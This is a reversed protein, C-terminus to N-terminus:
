NKLDYTWNETIQIPDKKDNKHIQIQKKDSNQVQQKQLFSLDHREYQNQNQSKKLFDLTEALNDYFSNIYSGQNSLNYSIQNNNINTNSTTNSFNKFLNNLNNLNNQIPSNSSKSQEQNKQQLTLNQYSNKDQSGSIKLPKFLKLQKMEQQIEEVKRNFQTRFNKLVYIQAEINKEQQNQSKKHSNQSQSLSELEENNKITYIIHELTSILQNKSVKLNQLEQYHKGTESFINVNNQNQHIQSQEDLNNFLKKIQSLSNKNNNELNQIDQQQIFKQNQYINNQDNQEKKKLLPSDKTNSDKKASSLQNQQKYKHLYNNNKQISPSDSYKRFKQNSNIQQQSIDSQKKKGSTSKCFVIKTEQFNSINNSRNPTAEQFLNSQDKQNINVQDFHNQIDSKEKKNDDNDYLKEQKQELIGQINNIKNSKTSFNQIENKNKLQKLDNQQEDIMFEPSHMQREQSNFTEIKQSSFMMSKINEMEKEFKSLQNKLSNIEHKSEMLEQEM